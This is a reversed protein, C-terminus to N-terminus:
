FLKDGWKLIVTWLTGLVAGGGILKQKFKRDQEIYAEHRKVMDVLGEQGFTPNGIIATRIEDLTSKINDIENKLETYQKTTIPM